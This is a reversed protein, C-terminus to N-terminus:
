SHSPLQSQWQAEWKTLATLQRVNLNAGPRQVRIAQYAQMTDDAHGAAVMAASLVVTSRGHGHACHIFVPRGEARYKLAFDVGRQIQEVSSAHTDWTPLALYPQDHKKPLECTCDVVAVGGPPLHMMLNNKPWAGLYWGELIKDYPNETSYLKQVALKSRLVVHYPWFLGKGWWAISGDQRKGLLGTTLHARQCPIVTATAVLSALEVHM